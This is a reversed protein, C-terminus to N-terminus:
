DDRMGLILKFIKKNVGGATLSRAGFKFFLYFRLMFGQILGNHLRYYLLQSKKSHYYTDVAFKDNVNEGKYHVLGDFPIFLIKYGKQKIRRCIDADEYFLFFDVNFGGVSEFIDKPIVLAAGSVWEVERVSDGSLFSNIVAFDKKKFSEELKKNKIEGAFTNEHWYSLQPSGDPYVLGLGAAGFDIGGANAKFYPIFDKRFETDANLFLLYKGSAEASALNNAHAFGNNRSKIIKANEIAYDDKKGSNDVVIIEYDGTLNNRVSEICRELFDKQNHNIIIISFLM